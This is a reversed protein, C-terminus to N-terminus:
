ISWYVQVNFDVSPVSVCTFRVANQLSEIGKLSDLLSYANDQAQMQETTGSLIKVCEPRIESSIGNLSITQQKNIWANASLTITYPGFVEGANWGVVQGKNTQPYLPVLSGNSSKITMVFGLNENSM